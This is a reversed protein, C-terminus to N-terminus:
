SHLSSSFRRATFTHPYPLSHAGVAKPSSARTILGRALHLSARPLSEPLKEGRQLHHRRRRRHRRRRQQQQWQIALLADLLPPVSSERRPSASGPSLTVRFPPSPPSSILCIHTIDPASHIPPSLALRLASLPRPPPPLSSHVLITPDACAVVLLVLFGPRNPVYWAPWPRSQLTIPLLPRHQSPPTVTQATRFVVLNQPM